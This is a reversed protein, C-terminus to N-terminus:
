VAGCYQVFVLSLRDLVVSGICQALLSVLRRCNQKNYQWSRIAGVSEGSYKLLMMSSDLWRTKYTEAVSKVYAVACM